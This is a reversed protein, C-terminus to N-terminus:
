SAGLYTSMAELLGNTELQGLILNCRQCLIGRVHKEKRNHDHDVHWSRHRGNPTDTKCIKCVRGQAEFIEEFQELTIGYLRKLAYGRIRDRNSARWAALRPKNADNWNRKAELNKEPNKLVWRQRAEKTAM